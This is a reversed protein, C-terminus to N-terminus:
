IIGNKEMWEKNAWYFEEPGADEVRETNENFGPIQKIDKNNTKITLLVTKKKNFIASSHSTLDEIDSRLM